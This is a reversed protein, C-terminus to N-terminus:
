WIKKYTFHKIIRLTISKKYKICVSALYELLHVLVLFGVQAPTAPAAPESSPTTTPTAPTSAPAAAPAPTEAPAAAAPAPAPAAKPKTVMVVIFKKEDINYKTLPEDDVSILSLNNQICSIKLLFM